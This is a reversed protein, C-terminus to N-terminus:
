IGSKVLSYPKIIINVSSIVWCIFWNYFRMFVIVESYFLKWSEFGEFYVTAYINLNKRLLLSYCSIFFNFLTYIGYHINTADSEVYWVYLAQKRNVINRTYQKHAEFKIIM